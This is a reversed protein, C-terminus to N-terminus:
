LTSSIRHQDLVRFIHAALEPSSCPKSLFLDCGARQAEDRATAEAHGTLAFVPIDRTLSDAKLLRTADWGSMRPLSVDMVIIAPRLARAAEIATEGDSAGIAGFGVSKLHDMYMDRNEDNDVVVLIRSRCLQRGSGRPPRASTTSRPLM